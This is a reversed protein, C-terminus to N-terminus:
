ASTPARRPAPLVRPVPFVQFQWNITGSDSPHPPCTDGTCSYTFQASGTAFNDQGTGAFSGTGDYSLAFVSGNPAVEKSDAHFTVSGDDKNVSGSVSSYEGFPDYKCEGTIVGDGDVFAFSEFPPAPFQLHMFGCGHQVEHFVDDNGGTASSIIFTLSAPAPLTFAAHAPASSGLAAVAALAVILLWSFRM